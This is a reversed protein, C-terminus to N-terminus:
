EIFDRLGRNGHQREERRELAAVIGIAGGNRLTSHADRLKVAEELGIRGFTCLVLIIQVRSRRVRISLRANEAALVAPIVLGTVNDIPRLDARVENAVISVLKREAVGVRVGIVLGICVWIEPGATDDFGFRCVAHREDRRRRRVRIIGVTLIVLKDPM